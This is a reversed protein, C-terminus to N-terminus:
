YSSSSSSTFLFVLCTGIVGACGVILTGVIAVYTLWGDKCMQSLTSSSKYVACDYVGLPGPGLILIFNCLSAFWVAWFILMAGSHAKARNTMSLTMFSICLICTVFGFGYNATWLLFVALVTAVFATFSLVANFLGELAFNTIIKIAAFVATLGVVVTLVVPIGYAIYNDLNSM